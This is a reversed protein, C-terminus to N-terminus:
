TLSTETARSSKSHSVVAITDGTGVLRSLQTREQTTIYGRAGLSKNEVRKEGRIILGMFEELNGYAHMQRNEGSRLIDRTGNM